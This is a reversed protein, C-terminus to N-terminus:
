NLLEEYYRIVSKSINDWSYPLVKKRTRVKSFLNNSGLNKIKRPIQYRNKVFFFGNGESFLRPFGGFRTTIVPLNCAMAEMITFSANEGRSPFVVVDAARMYDVLEEDSVFGTMIIDPDNETM